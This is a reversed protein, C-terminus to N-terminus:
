RFRRSYFPPFRKSLFLHLRHPQQYEESERDDEDDQRGSSELQMRKQRQQQRREPVADGRALHGQGLDRRRHVGAEALVMPAMPM